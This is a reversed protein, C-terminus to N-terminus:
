MAGKLWGSVSKWFAEPCEEQPVHGCGPLVALTADPLGQAVRATDAPPVLRDADGTVLLAPQRVDDLHASVTVPVSLSQNLLEGWALDWGAVGKHTLMLDRRGPPIRSPDAYSAPLLVGDGLKRALLLSLRRLQPLDAVAEPLTPRQAYVWPAVLILREVRAPRALAAELALTGGSSNGVLVAREIGLADLFAFLQAVAAEKAYPNAGLWDGSVPKASLGYPVQDYAYVPGLAAFRPLVAGWTHANFTFGHLLVFVPTQSTGSGPADLYHIDLGETGAFRVTVFRGGPGAADRPSPLGPAPQAPILFPGLLAVALILAALVALVLLIRRVM